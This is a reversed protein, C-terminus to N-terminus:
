PVQAGEDPAAQPAKRLLAYYGAPPSSKSKGIQGLGSIRFAEATINNVFNRGLLPNHTDKQLTYLHVEKQDTCDFSAHRRVRYPYGQFEMDLLAEKTCM